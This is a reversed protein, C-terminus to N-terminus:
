RNLSLKPTVTRVEFHVEGMDTTFFEVERGKLIRNSLENTLSDFIKTSFKQFNNKEILKSIHSEKRNIECSKIQIQYEGPPLQELDGNEIVTYFGNKSSVKILTTLYSLNNNHLKSIPQILMSYNLDGRYYINKDDSSLQGELVFGYPRWYANKLLAYTAKSPFVSIKIVQIKREQTENNLVTILLPYEGVSAFDLAEISTKIEINSRKIIGIDKLFEEESIVSHQPYSYQSINELIEITKLFSNNNGSDLIYNPNLSM